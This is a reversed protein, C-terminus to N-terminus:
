DLESHIMLQLLKKFLITFLKPDYETLGLKAAWMTQIQNQMEEKFGRRIEDFQKLAGTDEALLLRVASYFM